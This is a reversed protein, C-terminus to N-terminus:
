IERWSQGTIARYATMTSVGFQKAIAHYPASNRLARMQVVQEATLKAMHHQEGTRRRYPHLRGKLFADMVNDAQTGLFLHAPNVCPPNDCRHLVNLGKPIKGNTLIWAMRHAKWPKGNWCIVGYGGTNRHGVWLWCADSKQVKMWFSSVTTPATM